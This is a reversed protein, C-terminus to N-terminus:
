INRVSTGAEYARLLAKRASDLVKNYLESGTEIGIKRRFESEVKQKGKAIDVKKKAQAAPSLDETELAEMAADTEAAVQIKVEGEKTTEGIEKTYKLENKTIANYAQKAKNPIQPNIWGFLGNPNENEPKYNRVHPLLEAYTTSLFTDNDIGVHPQALILGDLMKNSQMDKIAFDAGSEKWTKNTWGMEALENVSNTQDKSFKGEAIGSDVKAFAIAREGLKGKEINTQYEKM